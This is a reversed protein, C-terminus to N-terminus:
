AADATGVYALKGDKGDAVCTFASAGPMDARAPSLGATVKGSAEIAAGDAEGNDFDDFDAVRFTRTGGAQGVAPALALALAALGTMVRSVHGSLCGLVTSNDFDRATM